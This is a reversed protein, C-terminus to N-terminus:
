ILVKYAESIAEVSFPALWHKRQNADVCPQQEIFQILTVLLESDFVTEEELLCFSAPYDELFATSSDEAIKAINLIPKGLSAYEVLKSPLQYPVENGINVLIDAEKMAQFAQSRSLIGHCFVKKNLMAEYPQFYEQCNNISGIFHLELKESLYTQLLQNFLRLLWDPKRIQKHLTGVCVLRIKKELNSLVIEQKEQNRVLSLLPPIIKIKLANKPFLNAYKNCTIPTTVAIANAQTFVKEEYAYNLSKYLNFNNTPM